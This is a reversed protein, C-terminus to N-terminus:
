QKNLVLHTAGLLGANNGLEAKKVEVQDYSTM